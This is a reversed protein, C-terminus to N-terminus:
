LELCASVGLKEEIVFKLVSQTIMVLGVRAMVLEPTSTKVDGCIRCASWFSEFAKVLSLVARQWKLPRAIIPELEDVVQVLNSILRGEARHNLRLQGGSNLWPISESSIQNSDILKEQQALRLLSCCRAHAYQISFLSEPDFESIVAKESVSIHNIREGRWNDIFGQLWVALVFDSVEIEILGSSFVQVLLDEGWNASLHSAISSALEFPQSNHSKSLHLAVASVYSIKIDSKGKSLPIQKKQIYTNEKSQAYTSILETLKGYILGILATYKSVLLRQHVSLGSSLM